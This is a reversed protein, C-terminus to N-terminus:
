FPLKILKDADTNTENAVYWDKALKGGSQVWDAFRFYGECFNTKEMVHPISSPTKIGWVLNGASAYTVTKSLNEDSYDYENFVPEYGRLHIEKTRDANALFIDIKNDLLDEVSVEEELNLYIVVEALQNVKTLYEKETNLYIAGAPKNPNTGSLNKFEFIVDDTQSGTVKSVAIGETTNLRIQPNPNSSQYIYDPINVNKADLGVIRVYPTFDLLGGLARTKLHIRMKNAKTTNYGNGEWPYELTIQYGLVIDNFDYDGLAPYMDEFLVLGFNAPYSMLGANEIVPPDTPDVARSVLQALQAVQTKQADPINFSFTNGVVSASTIKKEGSAATYSAYVTELCDPVSTMVRNDVGAQTSVTAILNEKCEKDTFLEVLASAEQTNVVCAVNKSTVWDFDAPVDLNQVKDPVVPEVQKVKDKLCSQLLVMGLAVLLLNRM